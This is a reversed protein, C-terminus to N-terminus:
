YNINYKFTKTELATIRTDDGSNSSISGDSLLYGPPSPGGANIVFKDTYVNRDFVTGDTTIPLDTISFCLCM